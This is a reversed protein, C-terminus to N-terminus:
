GRDRMDAAKNSFAGHIKSLFIKNSLLNKSILEVQLKNSRLSWSIYNLLLNPGERTRCVREASDGSRAVRMEVRVSIREEKSCRKIQWEAVFRTLRCSQRVSECAQVSSSLWLWIRERNWVAHREARGRRARHGRRKKRDIILIPQAAASASGAPWYAAM